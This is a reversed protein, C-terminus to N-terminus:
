VPENWACACGPLAALPPSSAAHLPASAPSLLSTLRPTSTLQPHRPQHEAYSSDQTRPLPPHPAPLSEPRRERHAHFCRHHFGIFHLRCLTQLSQAKPTKCLVSHRQTERHHLGRPDMAPHETVSAPPTWLLWLDEAAFAALLGRCLLDSPVM